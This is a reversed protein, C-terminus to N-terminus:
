KGTVQPDNAFDAINEKTLLTPAPGIFPEVKGGTLYTLVTNMGDYGM